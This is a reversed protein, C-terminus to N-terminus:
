TNATQHVLAGGNRHVSRILSAATTREVRLIMRAPRWDTATRNGASSPSPMTDASAECVYVTHDAELAGAAKFTDGETLVVVGNQDIIRLEPAFTATVGIHWIPTLRDGANAYPHDSVLWVLWVQQDDSAQPDGELGFPGLSNMFCGSGRDETRIHAEPPTPAVSGTSPPASSATSCSALWVSAVIAFIRM